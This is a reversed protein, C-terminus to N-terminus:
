STVPEIGALLVLLTLRGGHYCVCRFAPFITSYDARAVPGNKKHVGGARLPRAKGTHDAWMLPVRLELEAGDLEVPRYLEVEFAIVYARDRERPRGLFQEAEPELVADFGGVAGFM